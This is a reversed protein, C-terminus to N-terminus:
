VETERALYTAGESLVITRRSFLAVVTRTGLSAKVLVVAKRMWFGVLITFSSGDVSDSWNFVTGDFFFFFFFSWFPMMKNSALGDPIPPLESTVM